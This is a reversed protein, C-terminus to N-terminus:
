WEYEDREAWGRKVALWAKVVLQGDEGPMADGDLESDDHLTSKPVWEADDGVEPIELKLAEETRAVVTARGLNHPEDGHFRSTSM